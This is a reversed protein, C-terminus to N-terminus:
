RGRIYDGRLRYGVGLETILIDPESPNIEIKRRLQAIYIRLYHTDKEHEQGWVDKLLQSQLVVGGKKRALIQLLSYERATLHIEKEEVYVTRQQFNIKLRGCQLIPETEQVKRKLCSRIRALLEGARFPKVVYDDAGLDLAQIIEDEGNMVSLIIIPMQSWERIRKLTEFGSQDPFNLDLLVLDPKQEAAKAAAETASSAEITSYDNSNLFIRIFKRIGPEDDAILIQM